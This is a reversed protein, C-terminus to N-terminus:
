AATAPRRRFQEASSGPAKRTRSVQLRRQRWDLRGEEFFEEANDADPPPMTEPEPPAIPEPTAPRAPSPLRLPKGALAALEAASLEVEVYTKPKAAPARKGTEIKPSNPAMDILLFGLELKSALTGAKVREMVQQLSMGWLEAAVAPVVWCSMAMRWNADLDRM